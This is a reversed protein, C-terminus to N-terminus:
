LLIALKEIPGLSVLSSWSEKLWTPSFLSTLVFRHHQSSCNQHWLICLIQSFIGILLTLPIWNHKTPSNSYWAFLFSTLINIQMGTIFGRYDRTIGTKIIGPHVANITVNAKRAQLNWAHIFCWLDSCIDGGKQRKQHQSLCFNFSFAIEQHTKYRSSHQYNRPM